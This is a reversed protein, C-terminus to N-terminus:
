KSFPVFMKEEDNWYSRLSNVEEKSPIRFIAPKVIHEHGLNCIERKAPSVLLKFLMEETIVGIQDGNTDDVINQFAINSNCIDCVIPEMNFRADGNFFHGNKCINQSFGEWSM